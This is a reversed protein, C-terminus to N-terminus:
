IRLSFLSAVKIGWRGRVDPFSFADFLECTRSLRVVTSQQLLWSRWIGFRGPSSLTGPIRAKNEGSRGCEGQPDTVGALGPSDLLWDALEATGLLNSRFQKGGNVNWTGVAVHIRKFHTFESQRESMARLVRPTVSLLCLLACNDADM